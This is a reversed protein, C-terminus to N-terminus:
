DLFVNLADTPAGNEDFCGKKYGHNVPTEPEWWFIGKLDLNKGGETLRRMMKDAIEPQDYSIGIECIMVPKDWTKQCYRINNICDDVVKEWNHTEPYLSMGIMDFRAGEATIKGFLRDYLWQQDGGDVHVIVIAEPFIAKVADYGANVMRTFNDACDDGIGGLPWMMGTRTENGIQVWEPEIGEARLAGLVEDVHATMAKLVGDLDLGDWAAPMTQSGPDAWTDSFHFDVMVRLGLANARRAKVVLDATNCWGEVTADNEPNVWVRLRIANVGCDDRLLTMLEKQDGARTQWKYGQAEFQTLWSVDAGKAYTGREIEVPKNDVPPNTVPSDQTCAGLAMSAGLVAISLIKNLKM